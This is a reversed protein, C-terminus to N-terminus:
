EAGDALPEVSSKVAPPPPTPELGALRKLNEAVARVGAESGVASTGFRDLLDDVRSAAVAALRAV